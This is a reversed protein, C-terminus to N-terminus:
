SSLSNEFWTQFVLITWLKMQWNRKGCLHEAWVKRVMQPNFFGEQELRKEDLQSEAWDRLPGRLWDAMPVSFGKKPRETM